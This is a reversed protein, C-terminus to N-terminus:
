TDNQSSKWVQDPRAMFCQEGAIYLSHLQELWHTRACFVCAAIQRPLWRDEPRLGEESGLAAIMEPTFKEWDTASRSYFEAFNAVITRWEQGGVVYPALQMYALWANRYRQRGGHKDKLHQKWEERRSFDTGSPCLLCQLPGCPKARTEWQRVTVSDKM